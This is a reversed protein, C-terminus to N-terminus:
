PDGPRRGTPPPPEVPPPPPFRVGRYVDALPIRVPVSELVFEAGLGEFRAPVWSGDPQRTYREVVPEDPAVLVYERLSDLQRYNLFKLGRDYRETSPSLVEFVVVPNTFTNEDLPDTRPEGCVIMLDPYTYLGTRDIGIRQDSSYTRCPGGRLRVFLEGILNEKAENHARAAGAMAFMEGHYFESKHPAAKEVALYEAATLLRPKPAASM